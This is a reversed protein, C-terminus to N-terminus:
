PAGFEREYVTSADRIGEQFHKFDLDSGHFAGVLKARATYVLSPDYEDAMKGRRLGNIAGTMAVFGNDYAARRRKEAGFLGAFFAMLYSMKM